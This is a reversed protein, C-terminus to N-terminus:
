LKPNLWNLATSSESYQTHAKNVTFLSLLSWVRTWGNLSFWECLKLLISILFYSHPFYMSDRTERSSMTVNHCAWVIGHCEGSWITATLINKSSRAEYNDSGASIHCYQAMIWWWHWIEADLVSNDHYKDLRAEPQECFGSKGRFVCKTVCISRSADILSQTKESKSQNIVSALTRRTLLNQQFM